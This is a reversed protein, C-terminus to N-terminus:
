KKSRGWFFRSKKKQPQPKTFTGDGGGSTTKYVESLNAAYKAGGRDFMKGAKDICDTREAKSLSPNSNIASQVVKLGDAGYRDFLVRVDREAGSIHTASVVRAFCEIPELEEAIGSHGEVKAKLGAKHLTEAHSEFFDQITEMDSIIKRAAMIESNFHFATPANLRRLSMIYMGTVNHLVERVLKCYFYQLLWTQIDQFYDQLTAVLVSCLSESFGTEWEFVFL